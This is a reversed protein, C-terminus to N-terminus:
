RINRQGFGHGIFEVPDNPEVFSRAAELGDDFIRSRMDAKKHRLDHGRGSFTRDGFVSDASPAFLSVDLSGVVCPKCVFGIHSQLKGRHASEDGLQDHVDTANTGARRESTRNRLDNIGPRDLGARCVFGSVASRQLRFGCLVGADTRFPNCKQECEVDVISLTPQTKQDFTLVLQILHDSRRSKSPRSRM